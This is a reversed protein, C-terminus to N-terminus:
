PRLFLVRITGPVWTWTAQPLDLVLVVTLPSLHKWDPAWWIQSHKYLSSSLSVRDRLTERPSALFGEIFWTIFHFGRSPFGIVCLPLEVGSWRHCVSDTGASFSAWRWGENRQKEEPSNKHPRKLSRLIDWFSFTCGNKKSYPKEEELTRRPSYDVEQQFSLRPM